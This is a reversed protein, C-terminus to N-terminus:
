LRQKSSQQIFFETKIDDVSKLLDFHTCCRLDPLLRLNSIFQTVPFPESIFMEEVSARDFTLIDVVTKEV